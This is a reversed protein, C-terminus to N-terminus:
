FKLVKEGLLGVLSIIPRAFSISLSGWRMSKPFPISLIEKELIGELISVSSECKEEIVATLYRGKGTDEVTIQDLSVGAKSAFKEAAITPKGEMLALQKEPPGTITSTKAKQMDAVDDVMLVLRRPRELPRPKGMTL